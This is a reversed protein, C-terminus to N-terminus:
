RREFRAVNESRKAATVLTCVATDAETNASEGCVGLDVVHELSDFLSHGEQSLEAREPLKHLLTNVQVRNLPALM